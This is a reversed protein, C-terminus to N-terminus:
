AFIHVDVSWASCPGGGGIVHGAKTFDAPDCQSTTPSGSSANETTITWTGSICCIQVAIDDIGPTSCTGSPAGKCNFDEVVGVWCGDNPDPQAVYTLTGSYTGCDGALTVNLTTPLEEVCCDVIVGCCCPDTDEDVMPLDNGDPHLTVGERSTTYYLTIAM